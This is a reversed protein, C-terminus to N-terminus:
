VPIEARIRTGSGPASEVHLRGDLAEVRDALGRLGSGTLPDAGGVGDDVVEVLARGNNREVRVIASSAQAYKAVNTLAEAVVYYAAAEVPEPLREDPAEALTVPVPSRTALAQLAPELGRDTLIAPHIGRALERLEELARGLEESATNLLEEAGDPDTQVKGQALRLFLSISVLRQQAGDHLNRELRRREVDGAEVIRARSSRLEEEQRKRDTMDIGTILFRLDGDEEALPTVRWAVTLREGTATVWRSENEGPRDLFNARVAEQEEPALFVEWFLRGRVDTGDSYGLTEELARNFRVIRGDRDVLCFLSPASQVVARVFDRERRLDDLRGRLEDQLSQIQAESRKRESIDRVILVAEDDTIPAVRAEFHRDIGGLRLQYEVTEVRGVALRALCRRLSEAVDEPLVAEIKRGILERAPLVLDADRGKVDLYTGDRSMRFMLDPLADLLARQRSESQELESLRRENELALAAAAAVSDLLDPQELLLSDHILAAVPRGEREVITAASPAGPEPLAVPNGATDVYEERDAFWYAVKLSPDGLVRSLARRLDGPERVKDLELLLSGVGASALRTRLIGVAFSLPVTLLFALTVWYLADSVARGAIADVFVAVALMGITVGFTLYVPSLARRLPATAERWRRVLLGCTWVIIALALVQITTEIADGLGPRFSVLFVNEPSDPYIPEHDAFLTWAPRLVASLFFATGVIAKSALSELRGSPYGLVLYAFAAWPLDNVAMGLSFLFPDNAQTLAGLFWTFGVVVMISGVPNDPRRARSVLGAAVFALGVATGLVARGTSRGLHDSSLILTFAAVTSLIALTWIGVTTRTTV